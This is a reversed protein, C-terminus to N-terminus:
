PDGPIGESDMDMLKLEVDALKDDDEGNIGITCTDAGDEVNFTIVDTIQALRLMKGLNHFNIGLSLTRDCRYHDCGDAELLVDVLAAHSTDM